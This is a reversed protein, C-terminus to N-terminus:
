LPQCTLDTQTLLTSLPVAQLFETRVYGEIVDTHVKAWGDATESEVMLRQYKYLRRRVEGSYSPADRLNLSSDEDINTVEAM